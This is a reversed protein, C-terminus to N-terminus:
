LEALVLSARANERELGTHDFLSEGLVKVYHTRVQASKDKYAFSVMNARSSMLELRARLQDASLGNYGESLDVTVQFEYRQLIGLRKYFEFTLSRIDPSVLQNEGLTSRIRFRIAKFTTGTRPETNPARPPPFLQDDTQRGDLVVAEGDSDVITRWSDDGEEYDYAIDIHVLAGPPDAGEQQISVAGVLNDVQRLISLAVKQAGAVNANFWPTISEAYHAYLRTPIQDPNTVHRPLDIYWLQNGTGFWLRYLGYADSVAGHNIRGHDRSPQGDQGGAWLVHWGSGVRELITSFLLEQNYQLSDGLLSRSLYRQEGLPTTDAEILAILSTQTGLLQVIRGSRSAPLGADLDPGIISVPSSIAGIDFKYLALGSPIMMSEHFPITGIGTDPHIPLDLETEVFKM